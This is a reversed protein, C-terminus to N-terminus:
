FYATMYFQLETSPDYVDYIACMLNKFFFILFLNSFELSINM